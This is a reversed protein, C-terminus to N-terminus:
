PERPGFIATGVRVWTAGHRIAVPYDRSMGMSLETLPLGAARGRQAMDALEAFYPATSEPDDGPPPLATLGVLEIGAVTSLDRARDLAHSPLVGSKSAEGGINVMMLCRLPGAARRALAEAQRVSELAHVRAAQAIFRAKNTQIRGVFHWILDPRAEAKSRLEQAYSEGFHVQGAAAVPAIAELSVTKSVAILHVSAPDRGAARCAADIRARVTALREAASM